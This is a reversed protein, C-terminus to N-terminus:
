QSGGRERSPSPPRLRHSMAQSSWACPDAGSLLNARMPNQEVYHVVQCTSVARVLRCGTFVGNAPTHPSVLGTATEIRASANNGARPQLLRVLLVSAAGSTAGPTTM